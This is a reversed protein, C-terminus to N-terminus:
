THSNCKMSRTSPFSLFPGVKRAFYRSNIVGGRFRRGLTGGVGLLQLVLPGYVVVLDDEEFAYVFSQEHDSRASCITIHKEFRLILAEVVPIVFHVELHLV